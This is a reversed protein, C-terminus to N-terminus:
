SFFNSWGPLKKQKLSHKGMKRQIAHYRDYWTQRLLHENKTTLLINEYLLVGRM